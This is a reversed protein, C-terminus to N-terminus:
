RSLGAQETVEMIGSGPKSKAPIGVHICTRTTTPVGECVPCYLLPFPQGIEDSEDCAGGPPTHHIIVDCMAALVQSGCKRCILGKKRDNDDYKRFNEKIAANLAAPSLGKPAEMTDTREKPNVAIGQTNRNFYIM